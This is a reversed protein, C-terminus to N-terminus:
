RWVELVPHPARLNALVVRGIRRGLLLHRAIADAEPRPREGRQTLLAVATAEPPIGKLGGQAHGILGSVIEPTIPTGVPIRLLAAAREPRHVTTEDLPLGLVDLNGVIIVRQSSRPIVPEHDAPAKLGRGKAGDAEVLWTVGPLRQALDSVVDPDLGVLKRPTAPYPAQAAMQPEGEEGLGAALLIAKWKVLVMAILAPDPSPDLLLPAQRPKFIHTTTTFVVREGQAVLSRLLRWITTTKGGAGVLAILEGPQIDLATQLDVASPSTRAAATFALILGIVALVIGLVGGQLGGLPGLGVVLLVIALIARIMRDVLG